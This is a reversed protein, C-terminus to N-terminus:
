QSDDLLQRLLETEDKTLPIASRIGAGVSSSIGYYSTKAPGMGLWDVDANVAADKRDPLNYDTAAALLATISSDLASDIENGHHAIPTEVDERYSATPTPSAVLSGSMRRSRASAATPPRSPRAAVLPTPARQNNNSMSRGSSLTAQFKSREVRRLARHHVQLNTTVFGDIVDSRTCLPPSLKPMEKKNKTNYKPEVDDLAEHTYGMAARCEDCLGVSRMRWAKSSAMTAVDANAKRLVAPLAAWYGEEMPELDTTKARQRHKHADMFKDIMFSYPVRALGGKHCLADCNPCAFTDTPAMRTRTPSREEVEDDVECDIWERQRLPRGCYDFQDDLIAFEDGGVAQIRRMPTTTPVLKALEFGTSPSLQDGLHRVHMVNILYLRDDRINFRFEAVMFGVPRVDFLDCQCREARSRELATALRRMTTGILNCAEEAGEILETQIPYLEGPTFPLSKCLDVRGEVAVSPYLCARLTPHENSSHFVDRLYRRELTLADDIFHSYAMISQNVENVGLHLKPCVYRQLIGSMYPGNEVVYHWLAEQTFYECTWINGRRDTRESMWCAIIANAEEEGNRVFTNTVTKQLCLISHRTVVSSLPDCMYAHGAGKRLVLTDPIPCGLGNKIQSISRLLREFKTLRQEVEDSPVRCTAFWTPM